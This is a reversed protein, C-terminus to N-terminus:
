IDLGQAQRLTKMPRTGFGFPFQLSLSRNLYLALVEPNSKRDKAEAIESPHWFSYGKARLAVTRETEQV